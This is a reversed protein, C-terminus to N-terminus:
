GGAAAQEGARNAQRFPLSGLRIEAGERYARARLLGPGPVNLPSFVVEFSAAVLDGSFEGAKPEANEPMELTALEVVEGADPEYFVRIKVAPRPLDIGQTYHIALAFKPLLLPYNEAFLESRYVGMYSVKNGIEYRIDDCFTVFGSPSAGRM